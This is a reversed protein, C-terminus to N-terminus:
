SASAPPKTETAGILGYHARVAREVFILVFDQVPFDARQEFEHRVEAELFVPNEEPVRGLYANAIRLVEEDSSM